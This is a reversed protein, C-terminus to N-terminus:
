IINRYVIDLGNSSGMFWAVGSNAGTPTVALLTGSAPPMPVISWSSTTPNYVQIIAPPPPTPMAAPTGPVTVTSAIPITASTPTPTPTDSVAVPNEGIDPVGQTPPTSQPSPTPLPRGQRIQKGKGLVPRIPAIGTDVYVSGGAEVFWRKGLALPPPIVIQRWTAGGDSSVSLNFGNNASTSSSSSSTPQLGGRPYPPSANTGGLYVLNPKNAALQVQMSFPIGQQLLKWNSGSDTTKYLSGGFGSQSSSTGPAGSPPPRLVPSFPAGVIEYITDMSSPDVAYSRVTQMASSFHSDLVTWNNGGDVSTVLRLLPSISTPRPQTPQGPLSFTSPPMAQLGFLQSGEMRLERPSWLLGSQLGPIQYVPTIINWTQGGDTSHLLTNSGQSGVPAAVAYVDNSDSPNIAFECSSDFAFKRGINQWHAGFDGSRLLTYTPISQAGQGSAPQKAACAYIVAPDSRAAKLSTLAYGTLVQVWNGAAPVPVSPTNQPQGLQSCAITGLGIVLTLAVVGALWRHPGFHARRSSMTQAYVADTNQTEM